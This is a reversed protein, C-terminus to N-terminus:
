KLAGGGRGLHALSFGLITVSVGMTLISLGLRDAIQPTIEIGVRSTLADLENWRALTETTIGWETLVALVVIAVGNFMLLYGAMTLTNGLNELPTRAAAEQPDALPSHNRGYFWYILMGIDLWVLLRVWTMVSLSVMLYLCSVVGLVPIM